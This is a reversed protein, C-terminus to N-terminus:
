HNRLFSASIYQLIEPMGSRWYSWSHGGDRVRFQHPINKDRMMTHLAANGRYLFDDDGCDIWFKVANKQKDAMDAMLNIVNNRKWHDDEKGFIREFLQPFAGILKVDEDTYLASSLVACTRFIGPHKVAYLLAGQGGMSLGGVARFERETRTRYASDISPILEKFFMEEYRVKGDYSNVYWHDKGDPMVIIMDCATGNAIARDTIRQIDGQQSWSRYDDSLGHLLYFVPYNREDTEYGTPLYIAYKVSDGLIHSYITCEQRITSGLATTAIFCLALITFIQRM